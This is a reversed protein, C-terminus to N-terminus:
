YGGLFKRTFWEGSILLLLLFFVWKLNLLSQFTEETRIIRQAPQQALRMTLQDFDAFPYFTGGTRESLQQLLQFQATSQQSEPNQANVIFEGRVSETANNWVTTAKYRYVGQPLSGLRYRTNGPSTTYTYRVSRQDEGTVELQVSNGYIQELLENYLQSEFVVPESGSFEPRIPFSRFRSRDERTSLYQILKGTLEDFGETKETERYESLRWRWLGDALFLARKADNENWTLLLPRMTAVSGIRQHLLVQAEPPFTFKGFPVSVPPYRAVLSGTNEGFAFDRFAGNLVPTVEDRQAANEFVFPLGQAAFTRPNTEAGAILWVGGPATKSQQLFSIMKPDLAQHLILLDITGNQWNSPAPLVNPIHVQWEYNPQSRVVAELAKIDPHPAPAVLVVRKKGDAVELFFTYRNNLLNKENQLPEVEVDFRQLGKERAEVEFDFIQFRGASANRTETAIVQNGKRLRLVVAANTVGSILVEARVPFRNGQYVVKNYAVNRIALDPRVTTDGVGVTFIPVRYDLYLPSSGSNYVGDSVVVVGALNKGEFDNQIKRFAGALDSQPHRFRLSDTGSLTRLEAEYDAAELQRVFGSVEDRLSDLAAATTGNAVSQSDDVLLVWVPKEFENRILKLLPGLLLFAICTVLVARVGLLVRNVTPSWPSKAQYLLWAYGLGVLV